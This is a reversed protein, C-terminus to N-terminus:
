PHPKEGRRAAEVRLVALGRGVPGRAWELALGELELGRGMELKLGRGVFVRQGCPV